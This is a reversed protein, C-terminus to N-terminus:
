GQIYIRTAKMLGAYVTHCRINIMETASVPIGKETVDSSIQLYMMKVDKVCLNSHFPLEDLLNGDLVVEDLLNGDLIVCQMM